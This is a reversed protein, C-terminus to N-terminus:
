GQAQLRRALAENMRGFNDRIDGRLRGRMLPVLLGRVHEGHVLRTGGNEASLLFYHEGDFLGPLGLQGQWRLEQDPQVTLLRPRFTMEQGDVSRNTFTIRAGAVLPGDLRVIVPNWEPYREVDSLVAWVQQPSAPLWLDTPVEASLAAPWVFRVANTKM